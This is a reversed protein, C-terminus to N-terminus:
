RIGMPLYASALWLTLVVIGAMHFWPRRVFILAAVLVLSVLNDWQGM